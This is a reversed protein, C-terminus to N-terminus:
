GSPTIMGWFTCPSGFTGHADIRAFTGGATSDRAIVNMDAHNAASDELRYGEDEFSGATRHPRDVFRGFLRPEDGGERAPVRDM